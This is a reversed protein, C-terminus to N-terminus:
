TQFLNDVNCVVNVRVFPVIIQSFQFVGIAHVVNTDGHLARDCPAFISPAIVTDDCESCWRSTIIM